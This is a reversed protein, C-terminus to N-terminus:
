KGIPRTAAILWARDADGLAPSLTERVRAHYANLWAIEAEDLLSPDVLRLDIPAITLTEFGLMPREGGAIEEPETVLLLNEIRIGYAASKYYGPENSVIMGPELAQAGTKAIRQPGEHVSLYSGVGHGTGHDFDLGVKWLAIRALADIQAGTTGKPFRATAIGIHGKLVLTARTIAEKPPTGVAITRTIDTTGDRYQAGSDILFVSDAPVPRNTRETVRYHVIAGNPGAGSITDFSIDRLEGTEARFAELRRAVSIEDTLNGERDFWALFRAYAIADRLHAARAGEIEASTKIAKPLTAPDGAEVIEGGAAVVMDAIAASVWAPDLLIKRGAAAEAVVDAFRAPEVIDAHRTIHDRSENTFKRADMALVPRGDAPLLCYGLAFPTHPVDAGRINFTWAIGDPQTMITADAKKETLTKGIIALKEDVGRGALSEPHVEIRGAPPAPRDTWVADVPNTDVAVLEAGARRVIRDLRKRAEMTHLAPDFGIKMGEHLVEGFWREIGYESVHLPRLTDTDIQDKVQETYRGDIFLAAEDGLVAALGASGTFGTLWALREASAPVYEGQFEDARPVLFGDLGRKKLEERLAAIRTSGPSGGPPDDFHQFM